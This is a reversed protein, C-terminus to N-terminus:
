KIPHEATISETKCCHRTTAAHSLDRWEAAGEFSLAFRREFGSRLFFGPREPRSSLKTARREPDPHCNQQAGPSM